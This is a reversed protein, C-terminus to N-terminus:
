PQKVDYNKDCGADGPYKGQPDCIMVQLVDYEDYGYFRSAQITYDRQARPGTKRIKFPYPWDPLSLMGEPLAHENRRMHDGLTNLILTGLQPEFSGILLLEPLGRIANGITYYFGTNKSDPIIGFIHQGSQDINRQIQSDLQKATVTM